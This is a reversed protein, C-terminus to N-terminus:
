AVATGDPAIQLDSLTQFGYWDQPMLARGARAEGSLACAALAILVPLLRRAHM